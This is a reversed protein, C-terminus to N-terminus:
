VGSRGVGPQVFKPRLTKLRSFPIATIDAFTTGPVSASPHWSCRARNWQGAQVSSPPRVRFGNALILQESALGYCSTREAHAMTIMPSRITWEPDPSSPSSRLSSFLWAEKVLVYDHPNLPTVSWVDTAERHTWTSDQYFWFEELKAGASSLLGFGLQFWSIPRQIKCEHNSYSQIQM